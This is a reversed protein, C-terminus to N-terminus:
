HKGTVPVHISDPVPKTKEIHGLIPMIVLFYGFYYATGLLSLIPYIGEAPKSGCYGLMVANLVFIWFFIRMVPRYNCSRVKCTDLWPIFFLVIIAGFMALVGALKSAIVAGMIGAFTVVM